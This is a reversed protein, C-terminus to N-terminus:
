YPKLPIIRLPVARRVALGFLEGKHDADATGEELKWDFNHVLTATTMHLIWNALPLGPCIRRGSGFPILEFDQGKFDINQDLFREPEFSDPNKWISPDRGMAWVNILIQTGKPILYGNVEQDSEAKRPLLLPGPPHYRLVEKIVAQLYPLRPIHSEDVLKKDGVVSKLEDKVNAMKDPNLVLESMIWEISTTNTESGGVFLDLLLHTLHDTTLQYQNGEIINVLTELFDKKKPADPNAKRSELREHLYGEIKCLLKGFYADARRKIGQLDFPKLMPFYDAFNAVGVITAVGEIIEKFERTVESEFETAQTSFLTASMLNLTTIFAAERIDVARGGDCCKQAYDLLQQLKQQRLGESAELSHHSFIQERCIKPMERWTTEVPLFGMSIKDHDCAHVAQAITRGSFVQGHKQLIEKAVAPSSIIVTYLSGLHISMLPGHKKALQAFTQHPKAGLQLMNGVLPLPYPGPSLNRRSRLGSRLFLYCIWTNFLLIVVLTFTEM